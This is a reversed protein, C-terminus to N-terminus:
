QGIGVDKNTGVMKQEQYEATKLPVYDTNWVGTVTEPDGAEWSTVKRQGM